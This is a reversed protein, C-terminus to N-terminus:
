HTMSKRSRKSYGRKRRSAIRLLTKCTETDDWLTGNRLQEHNWWPDAAISSALLLTRVPNCILDGSSSIFDPGHACRFLQLQGPLKRYLLPVGGWSWLKQHMEAFERDKEPGSAVFVFAQAVPPKGNRSAEFFVARAGYERAKEMM